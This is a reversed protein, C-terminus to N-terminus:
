WTKVTSSLAASSLMDVGTREQTMQQQFKLWGTKWFISFDTTQSLGRDIMQSTNM